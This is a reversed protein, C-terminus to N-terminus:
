TGPLAFAGRTRRLMWAIVGAINWADDSGRHHTGELTLGALTVAEAMSYERNFSGLVLAHMNKANVHLRGWPYLEKPPSKYPGAKRREIIDPTSGNWRRQAEAAFMERDYAGWSAWVLQRPNLDANLKRIAEEFLTGEAELLDATITTLSTCFPSVTSRVPKILYSRKGSREFTRLDLECLGIEIIESEQGAPPDEEWCTAEVDVVILKDLKKGM